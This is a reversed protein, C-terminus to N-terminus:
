KEGLGRNVIQIKRVNIVVLALVKLMVTHHGRLILGGIIMTMTRKVPVKKQGDVRQYKKILKKVEMQLVDAM